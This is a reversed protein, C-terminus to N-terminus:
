IIAVRGIQMVGIACVVVVVVVTAVEIVLGLVRMMANDVDIGIKMRGTLLLRINVWCHLIGIHIEKIEIAIIHRRSGGVIVTVAVVVIICCRCSRSPATSQVLLNALVLLMVCYQATAAATFGVVVCLKM